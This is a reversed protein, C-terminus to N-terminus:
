PGVLSQETGVCRTMRAGGGGEGGHVGTVPVPVPRRRNRQGPCSISGLLTRTLYWTRNVCVRVCEYACVHM